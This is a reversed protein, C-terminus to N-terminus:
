FSVALLILDHGELIDSMLTQSQHNDGYGTKSRRLTMRM